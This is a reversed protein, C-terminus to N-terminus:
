AAAVALGAARPFGLQHIMRATDSASMASRTAVELPLPPPWLEGLAASLASRWEGPAWCPWPAGRVAGFVVAVVEVVVVVEVVLL